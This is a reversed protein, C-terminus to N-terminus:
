RVVYGSTRAPKCRPCDVSGCQRLARGSARCEHRCRETDDSASSQLNYMEATLDRIPEFDSPSYSVNMATKVISSNAFQTASKEISKLMQEVRMQTQTLWQMNEEKVKGEIDGSAIFYSVIGILVAPIMGLLLSYSLLRLLYRSM